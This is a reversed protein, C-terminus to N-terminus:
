IRAFENALDKMPCRLANTFYEPWSEHIQRDVKWGESKVLSRVQVGNM